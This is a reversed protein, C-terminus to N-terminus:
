IRIGLWNGTLRLLFEAFYCLTCLFVPADNWCNSAVFINGIVDSSLCSSVFLSLFSSLGGAQWAECKSRM